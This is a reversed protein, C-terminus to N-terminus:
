KNKAISVANQPISPKVIFAKAFSGILNFENEPEKNEVPKLSRLYSIVATMDEDSM